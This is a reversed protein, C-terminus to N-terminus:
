IGLNKSAANKIHRGLQEEVQKQLQRTTIARGGQWSLSHPQYPLDTVFTVQAGDSNFKIKRTATVVSPQKKRM